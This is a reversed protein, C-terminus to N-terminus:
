HAPYFHVRPLQAPGVVTGVEIWITEHTTLPLSRPDGSYQVYSGSYQFGSTGATTNSPPATFITVPGSFNAFGNASIPQGWVDLLDGLHFLVSNYNYTGTGVVKYTEIHVIGSADHTHIAYFCSGSNVQGNPDDTPANNMGIADPTAYQVGNVMVGVYVHIHYYQTGNAMPGCQLLPNADVTQGLGGTSSDGDVPAFQDDTGQVLGYSTYITAPGTTSAKTVFAQAERSPATNQAPLM